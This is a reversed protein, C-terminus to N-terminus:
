AVKGAGRAGQCEALFDRADRARAGRWFIWAERWERERADRARTRWWCIRWGWLANGKWWIGRLGESISSWVSNTSSTISLLLENSTLSAPVQSRLLTIASSTQDAFFLSLLSSSSNFRSQSSSRHCILSKINSISSANCTKFLLGKRSADQNRREAMSFDANCQLILADFLSPLKVPLLDVFSLRQLDRLPVVPTSPRSSFGKAHLIKIGNNLWQFILM